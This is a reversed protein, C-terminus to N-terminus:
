TTKVIYSRFITGGTGGRLSYFNAHGKSRLEKSLKLSDIGKQCLLLYNQNQDLQLLEESRSAPIHRVKKMKSLESQEVSVDILVYNELQSEDEIMVEFEALNTYNSEKLATITAKDSCLPCNDNKDREIKIIDMGPFNILSSQRHNDTTRGLLIEIAEQAQLAGITTVTHPMIGAETCSKVCSESPIDPWVCRLCGAESKPIYVALQGEQQYVSAQVLPTKNLFAADHVLFKTKFNDSCDVVLDCTKLFSVINHLDLREVHAEVDVFPNMKILRAKAADAKNKGIDDVTYLHQRHLNNIEVRDSDAITIKGVGAGALNSLVVSGLGGAGVVLVHAQKLKEQGAVGLSGLSMQSLYYEAESYHIHSHNYCAQCNVWEADKSIYHEKKWIPLRTKVEDIIYQCAEFAAARHASTVGVWVALDKIQLHGERHICAADLIEFKEKAEAIIAKGESVALEKFAEYELSSVSEGENHNRVLGEFIVLAGAANDALKEKLRTVNIPKSTIEFM